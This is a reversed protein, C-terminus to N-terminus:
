SVVWTSQKNSWSPSVSQAVLQAVGLYEKRILMWRSWYIRNLLSSILLIIHHSSYRICVTPPLLSWCWKHNTHSSWGYQPYSLMFVYSILIHYPMRELCHTAIIMVIQYLIHDTHPDDMHPPEEFPSLGDRSALPCRRYLASWLVILDIWESLWLDIRDEWPHMGNKPIHLICISLYLLVDWSTHVNHKNQVYWYCWNGSNFLHMLIQSPKAPNPKNLQVYFITDKVSRLVEEMIQNPKSQIRKTQRVIYM